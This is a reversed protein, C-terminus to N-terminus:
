HRDMASTMRTPLSQQQWIASSTPGGGATGAQSILMKVKKLSPEHRGNNVEWISDTLVMGEIDDRLFLSTNWHKKSPLHFVVTNTGKPGMTKRGAMQCQFLHVKRDDLDPRSLVFDFLIFVKFSFTKRSGCRRNRQVRKQWNTAVRQARGKMCQRGSSLSNRLKKIIEDWKKKEENKKQQLIPIIENRVSEILM